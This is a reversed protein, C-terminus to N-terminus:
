APPLSSTPVPRPKLSRSRPSCPSPATMTSSRSRTTPSSRAAIATIPTNASASTPTSFSMSDPSHGATFLGTVVAGGINLQEGHALAEHEYEAPYQDSVYIPAGTRQALEVHGSVFDAHPHTEFVAVIKAGRAEAAKLYDDVDRKPDDVAAEGDKGILYSAHALGEVFFREVFM